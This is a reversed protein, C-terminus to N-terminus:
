SFDISFPYNFILIQLPLQFHGVTSSSQFFFLFIDGAVSALGPECAVWLPQRDHQEGPGDATKSAPPWTAQV